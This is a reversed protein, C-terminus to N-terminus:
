FFPIHLEKTYMLTNNRMEKIIHRDKKNTLQCLKFASLTILFRELLCHINAQLVYISTILTFTINIHRDKKNTPM